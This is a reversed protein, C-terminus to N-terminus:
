PSWRSRCTLLRRCRCIHILSLYMPAHFMLANAFANMNCLTAEHSRGPDDLLKLLMPTYHDFAMKPCLSAISYISLAVINSTCLNYLVPGTIRMMFETFVFLDIPQLKHEEPLDRQQKLRLCM